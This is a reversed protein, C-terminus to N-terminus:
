KTKKTKKVDQVEEGADVIIKEAQEQRLKALQEAELAKRKAAALEKKLQEISAKEIKVKNWEQVLVEKDKDLDAQEVLLINSEKVKKDAEKIKNRYEEKLAASAIANEKDAAKKAMEEDILHGHTYVQFFVDPHAELCEWLDPWATPEGGLITFFHIGFDEKAQTVLDIFENMMINIAADVGDTQNLLRAIRLAAQSVLLQIQTDPM